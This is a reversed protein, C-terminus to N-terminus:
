AMVGVRRRRLITGAIMALVLVGLGTVARTVNETGANNAAKITLLYAASGTAREPAGYPLAGSAAREDLAQLRALDFAAKAATEDASWKM